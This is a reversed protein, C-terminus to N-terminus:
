SGEPRFARENGPRFAVIMSSIKFDDLTNGIIRFSFKKGSVGVKRRQNTFNEGGLTNTGIVFQGLPTGVVQNFTLTRKTRGDAIVEMSVKSTTKRDFVLTIFDLLKNKNALSPDLFGFDMHPTQLESSFSNEDVNVSADDTTFVFGDNTGYIPRQIGDGDKRLALCNMNDKVSYTVRAKQSVEGARISQLNIVLARDIQSQGIGQYTFYLLKKEPYYLSHMKGLASRDVTDRMFNENKLISLVDGSEIDGFTDAAVLSTISGTSNGVYADQLANSAANASAVGFSEDAKVIRWKTEDDNSDDLYYVGGPQKLLFLRGKYSFASVIGDGEGPFVEFTQPTTAFDEHDSTLSAYIRHPANANGFAWVRGNHLIGFKPFNPASWDAAPSSINAFTGSDGATVQVQDGGTFLFLKKSNGPSENGGSVFKIQNDSVSLGTKVAAGSTFTKDGTDRFIKGSRTVAFLRQTSADPFWDFLADVDSGGDLATTNFKTSGREKQVQNQFVSVNNAVIFNNPAIRSQANDTELTGDGLQIEFETGTYAM